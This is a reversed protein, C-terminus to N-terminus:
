SDESNAASQEQQTDQPLHDPPSKSDVKTSCYLGCSRGGCQSTAVDLRRDPLIDALLAREECGGKKAWELILGTGPTVTGRETDVIQLRQHIHRELGFLPDGSM